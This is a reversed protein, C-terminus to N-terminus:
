EVMGAFASLCTKRRTTIISAGECLTTSHNDFISTQNQVDELHAVSFYPFFNRHIYHDVLRCFALGLPHLGVALFQNLPNRPGDAFIPSDLRELPQM